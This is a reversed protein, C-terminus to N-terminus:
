KNSRCLRKIATEVKKQYPRLKKNWDYLMPALKGFTFLDSSYEKLFIRRYKDYDKLNVKGCDHICWFDNQKPVCVQYGYKYFEMCQSIDYYDWGNFIDDRWCIDYQTIMILGDVAMVIKYEDSFDNSPFPAIENTPSMSSELVKGYIRKASSWIGSAPITEAGIM